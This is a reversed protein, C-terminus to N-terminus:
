RAPRDPEHLRLLTLGMTTKGSGSEGVMGLTHGARLQFSTAGRPVRAGFVGTRLWFSKTVDAAELVVPADPDKPRRRRARHNERRQRRHPRRDGDAAGPKELSRAAPWCRRIYADQPSERLHRGGAQERIVGHRMVVVRDAIEGVVGLDHSIFLMSM